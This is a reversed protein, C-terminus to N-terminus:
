QLKGTPPLPKAIEGGKVEAGKIIAKEKDHEAQALQLESLRKEIEASEAQLEKHREMLKKIEERHPM